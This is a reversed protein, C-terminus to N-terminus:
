VHTPIPMNLRAMMAEIKEVVTSGATEPHDEFSNPDAPGLEYMFEIIDAPYTMNQEDYERDSDDSESLTPVYTDPKRKKLRMAKDIKKQKHDTKMKIYQEFSYILSDFFRSLDYGLLFRSRYNDAGGFSPTMAVGKKYASDYDIFRISYDRNKLPIKGQDPMWKLMINSTWLDGHNFELAELPEVAKAIKWFLKLYGKTDPRTKLLYKELDMDAKELVLVKKGKDTYNGHLMIYNPPIENKVMKERLYTLANLENVSHKSYNQIKLVVPEMVIGQVSAQYAKGAVGKGLYKLDSFMSAVNKKAKKRQRLLEHLDSTPLTTTM